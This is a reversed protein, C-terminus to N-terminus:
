GVPNWFLSDTCGSLLYTGLAVVNISPTIGNNCSSVENIWIESNPRIALLVPTRGSTRTDVQGWGSPEFVTFMECVRIAMAVYVSATSLPQLEAVM